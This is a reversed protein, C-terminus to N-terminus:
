KARGFLSVLLAALAAWISQGKVPASAPGLVPARLKAMEWWAAVDDRGPCQTATLNRHGVVRTATPHRKQIDAILQAMTDEQLRTPNWVGKSPGTARELGGAYCIGITGANHGRVHAGMVSEPRGEELTGDRRIFWHYGIERFGRERHMKDIDDRTVDQDAYTASYHVVITHIQQM